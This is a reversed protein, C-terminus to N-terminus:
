GTSLNVVFISFSVLETAAAKSTKFSCHHIRLMIIRIIRIIKLVRQRLSTAAIAM